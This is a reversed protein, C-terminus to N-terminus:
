SAKKPPVVLLGPSWPLWYCYVFSGLIGPRFCVVGWRVWVFCSRGPADVVAEVEDCRELQLPLCRLVAARLVMAEASDVTRNRYGNLSPSPFPFPLDPFCLCHTFGYVAAVALEKQRGPVGALSM